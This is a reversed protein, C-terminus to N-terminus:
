LGVPVKSDSITETSNMAPPNATAEACRVRVLSKAPPRIRPMPTAAM